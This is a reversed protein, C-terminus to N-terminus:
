QNESASNDGFKRWEDGYNEIFKKIIGKDHKFEESASNEKDLIQSKVITIM